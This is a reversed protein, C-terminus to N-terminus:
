SVQHASIVPGDGVEGSKLVVNRGEGVLDIGVGAAVHIQLMSTLTVVLEPDLANWGEM